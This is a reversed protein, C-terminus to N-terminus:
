SITHTYSSKSNSYVSYKHLGHTECVTYPLITVLQGVCFERSLEMLNVFYSQQRPETYLSVLIPPLRWIELSKVAEQHRKCRKCYRLLSIQTCVYCVEHPSDDEHGTSYVAIALFQLWSTSSMMSALLALTSCFSM